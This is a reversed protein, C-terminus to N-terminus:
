SPAAADAALPARLSEVALSLEELRRELPWVTDQLRTYAQQQILEVLAALRDLADAKALTTEHRELVPDIRVLLQEHRELAVDQRTLVESHHSLSGAQRMQEGVVEAVQGALRAASVVAEEATSAAGTTLALLEELREVLAERASSEAGLASRLLVVDNALAAEREMQEALLPRLLVSVLRRLTPWALTAQRENRTPQGVADSQAVSM